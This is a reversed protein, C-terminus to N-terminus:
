VARGGILGVIAGFGLKWTTSCTEIIRRIEDHPDPYAVALLVSVLLSLSTLLM